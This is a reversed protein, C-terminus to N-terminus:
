ISMGLPTEAPEVKGVQGTNSGVIDYSAASLRPPVARSDVGQGRVQAALRGPAPEVGGCMAQLPPMDAQANIYDGSPPLPPLADGEDDRQKAKADPFAGMVWAAGGVLAALIGVTKVAGMASHGVNHIFNSTGNAIGGGMKRAGKALPNDHLLWHANEGVPGMLQGWREKRAENVFDRAQDATMGQLIKSMEPNSAAMQKAMAEVQEKYNAM